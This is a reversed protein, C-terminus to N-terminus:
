RGRERPLMFASIPTRGDRFVCSLRYLWRPCWPWRNRQEPTAWGVTCRNCSYGHFIGWIKRLQRRGHWLRYGLPPALSCDRQCAPCIITEQYGPRGGAWVCQGCVCYGRQERITPGSLRM